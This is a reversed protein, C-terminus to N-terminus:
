VLRRRAESRLCSIPWGREQALRALRRNANVPRPHGVLELLPLDEDSDTYFWSKELDLDYTRALERGALAKGHGYCVPRLLRGTLRDGDRELRTCRWTDIGLAAAIPAVQYATASSVIVIRHGAERHAAILRVADPLITRAVRTEFVRHGFDVLESVHRGAVGALTAALFGSFELRGLLFSVIARSSRALEPLSMAGSRLQAALMATASYGAILTRDLDFFAGINRGHASAVVEAIREDVCGSDPANARLGHSGFAM